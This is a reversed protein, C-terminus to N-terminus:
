ANSYVLDKLYSKLKYGYTGYHGSLFLKTAPLIRLLPNKRRLEIRNKEFHRRKKVMEIGSQLIEEWEVEKDNEVGSISELHAAMENWRRYERDDPAALFKKRYRRVTRLFGESLYPDAGSTSPHRRYLMLPEDLFVIRSIM